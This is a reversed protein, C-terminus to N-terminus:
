SIRKDADSAGADAAAVEPWILFQFRGLAATAHPVLRNAHDLIDPGLDAVHFLAVKDHHGECKGVATAVKTVFSQLGGAKVAPEEAVAFSDAFHSGCLLFTQHSQWPRPCDVLGELRSKM